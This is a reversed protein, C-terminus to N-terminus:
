GADDLDAWRGQALYLKGLELWAPPFAPRDALTARWELEAEALRGRKGLARALHHRVGPGGLDASRSAFHHGPRLQALQRYCAIAGDLDGVEERLHGELDLLEPDDPCRARGTQCVALAERLRGLQRHGHAILVFLKRVISDGPHWRQLSQGLFSLAEDYRGTEQLAWGLNFLTFPDHPQEQYELYLLRLNRETKHRRLAPDTYGTHAIAIDTFRIDQGARRVGPLIQEHVRYSWRVLPPNAFLRVQDVEIPGAADSESPSRQVMVYAAAGNLSAKLAQLKARNADDFHEDGDLWLLWDGTAHRLSENRAAAFSDVWPFDFVRAGLGAAVEKTADRSGTDVVIIEDVLGAASHLCAPLNAAENKAILCLSIRQSM